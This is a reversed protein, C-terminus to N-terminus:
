RIILSNIFVTLSGGKLVIVLRRCKNIKILRIGKNKRHMWAVLLCPMASIRFSSNESSTNALKYSNLLKPYSVWGDAIRFEITELLVDEMSGMRQEVSRVLGGSKSENSHGDDDFGALSLNISDMSLYPFNIRLNFPFCSLRPYM